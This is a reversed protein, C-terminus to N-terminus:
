GKAVEAGIAKNLISRKGNIRPNQQNTIRITILDFALIDFASKTADFRLHFL